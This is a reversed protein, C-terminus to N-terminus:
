QDPERGNQKFHAAAEVVPQRNDLNPPSCGVAGTVSLGGACEPQQQRHRDTLVTSVDVANAFADRRLFLETPRSIEVADDRGGYVQGQDRSEAPSPRCRVPRSGTIGSM